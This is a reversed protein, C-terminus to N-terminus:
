QPAHLQPRPVSRQQFQRPERAPERQVQPPPPPPAPQVQAPPPRLPAQMPFEAPPTPLPLPAAQPQPAAPAVPADGRPRIMAWGMRQLPMRGQFRRPFAQPVEAVLNPFQSAIEPPPRGSTDTTPWVVIAGREEVDSRTLHPAYAPTEAVYLSPRSPATMAILSATSQDGTVIRLPKGTRRQFSEGFFQGLDAAPRGVKLDTAAV